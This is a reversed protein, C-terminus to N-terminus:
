ATTFRSGATFTPHKPAVRFQQEDLGVRIRVAVSLHQPECPDELLAVLFKTADPSSEDPAAGCAYSLQYLAIRGLDFNPTRSGKDARFIRPPMWSYAPNELVSHVLYVSTAPEFGTAQEM